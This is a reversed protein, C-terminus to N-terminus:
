PKAKRVTFRTGYFRTYRAALRAARLRNDHSSVPISNKIVGGDTSPIYIHKWVEYLATM